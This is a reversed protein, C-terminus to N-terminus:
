FDIELWVASSKSKAELKKAVGWYRLLLLGGASESPFTGSNYTKSPESVNGGNKLMNGGNKLM